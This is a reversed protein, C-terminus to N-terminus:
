DKDKSVAIASASLQDIKLIGIGSESKKHQQGQELLLKNKNSPTM